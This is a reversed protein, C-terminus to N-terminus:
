MLHPIIIYYVHSLTQLVNRVDPLVSESPLRRRISLISVLCLELTQDLQSYRMPNRPGRLNALCDRLLSRIVTLEDVTQYLRRLEIHLSYLRKGARRHYRRAQERNM